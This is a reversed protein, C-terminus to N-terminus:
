HTDYQTTNADSLKETCDPSKDMEESPPGNKYLDIVDELTGQLTEVADANLQGLEMSAAVMMAEIFALRAVACCTEVRRFAVAAGELGERKGLAEGYEGLITLGPPIDQRTFTEGSPKDAHQGTQKKLHIKPNKSKM